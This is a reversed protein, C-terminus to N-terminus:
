IASREQGATDYISLNIQKNQITLKKTRFDLGVTSLQNINFTRSVYSNILCTKGVKSEGILLVKIKIENQFDVM